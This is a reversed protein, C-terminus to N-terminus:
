LNICFGANLRLVNVLCKSTHQYTFLLYSLHEGFILIFLMLKIVLIIVNQVTGDLRLHLRLRLIVM